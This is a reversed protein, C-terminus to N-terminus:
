RHERWGGGANLQRIVALAADMSRYLHVHPRRPHGTAVGCVPDGSATPLDPLLILRAPEACATLPAGIPNKRYKRHSM